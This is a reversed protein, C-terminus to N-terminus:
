ETYEAFDELSAEFDEAVTILGQASGFTPKAKEAGPGRFRVIKGKREVTYALEERDHIVVEKAALSRAYAIAERKRSFHRLPMPIGNRKVAWSGQPEPTVHIKGGTPPVKQVSQSM